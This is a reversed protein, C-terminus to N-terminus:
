YSFHGSRSKEILLCFLRLTIDKFTCSCFFSMVKIKWNPTLDRQEGDLKLRSLIFFFQVIFRLVISHLKNRVPETGPSVVFITAQSAPHGRGASEHDGWWWESRFIAVEWIRLGGLASHWPEMCKCQSDGALLLKLQVHVYSLRICEVVNRGIRWEYDDVIKWEYGEWSSCRKLVIHVWELSNEHNMHVPWLLERM